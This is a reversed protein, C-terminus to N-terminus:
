NGCSGCSGGACGACGGNSSGAVSQGGIQAAFVVALKRMTNKGACQRCPIPADADRMSRLAEFRDGCDKCIYEYIPM